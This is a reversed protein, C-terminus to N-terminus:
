KAIRFWGRYKTPIASLVYVFSKPKFIISWALYLAVYLTFKLIGDCYLSSNVLRGVVYVLAAVSFSAILIPLLDLLQTKWNYGIYKSVLGINVIYCFWNFAVVGCLLGKMGFLILGVIVFALGATRKIVTWQFMIKSKGIAAITQTNVAQLCSSLGIICFIQFYPVSPAWEETYLLIFLPKAILILIFLMPFTVYAISTTLKKLVNIMSAMDDQLQAYLPYTIQTLVSSISKSALSETSEAKSFYGLLSPNYVKGIILHTIKSGIDNIVHTLFMFIGFSFLERFSSTSFTFSPRWKVYFWFFLAPVASTLLNSAVLAWVGYGSYAMAITVTLSVISTILSTIALVKFNMRKRLQNRQIINFANIFLVIGQVRLVDCLIPIEYFRAIFPACSFLIAYMVIAMAINWYFITSYDTQTPQKKQILASAFGGDIFADAIVMFITLMGICGYDFPTLLRALVIGSIFSIFIGSFRQVSTWAMSSLVNNKLSKSM